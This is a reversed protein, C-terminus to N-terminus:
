KGMTKCSDAVHKVKDITLTQQHSSGQTTSGSAAAASSGSTSGTIQVQHGVHKSLKSTDGQLQYTTGANDTLTFTGNSSQLCGEVSTQSSAAGAQASTPHSSQSSPDQAQLWAASCLIALALMLTKSM